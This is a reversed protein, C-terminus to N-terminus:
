QDSSGIKGEKRTSGKTISEYTLEDVYTFRTNCQKVVLQFPLKEGHKILWPQTDLNVCNVFVRGTYGPDIVGARVKLPTKTISGREEIFAAWGKPLAIRLGTDILIKYLEKNLKVGRFLGNMFSNELGQLPQVEIDSGANYLDLGVSEGYAPGYTLADINNAELIDLLEQEFMMAIANPGVPRTTTM